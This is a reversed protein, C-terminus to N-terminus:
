NDGLEGEVQKKGQNLMIDIEGFHKEQHLDIKRQTTLHLLPVFTYIKDDKSDSPLLESFTVSNKKNRLIFTKIKGYVERIVKTIDRTKKPISVDTPPISNLVRRRKVELAKQLADVLDYISVKRKRPQPTRPILSPKEFEELKEIDEEFTLEDVEEEGSILRDFESIDDTLLRHSKIRLLIAAALLIKGSIRFNLEKLKRITAIYRKTLISIDIDWPDMGEAKVLEYLLAQWTVEDKDFLLEFIKDHADM